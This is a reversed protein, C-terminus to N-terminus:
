SQIWSFPEFTCSIPSNKNLLAVRCAARHTSATGSLDGIWDALSRWPLRM